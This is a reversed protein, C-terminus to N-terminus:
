KGVGSPPVGKGKFRVLAQDIEALHDPSLIYTWTYMDALTQGEWVLDGTLKEPFGEPVSKPLNGEQLRRAARSQWKEYEPHYSIDPQGRPGPTELVTSTVTATAM